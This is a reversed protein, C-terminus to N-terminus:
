LSWVQGAWDANWIPPTALLTSCMVLRNPHGPQLTPPNDKMTLARPGM